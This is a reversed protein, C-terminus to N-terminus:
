WWTTGFRREEWFAPTVWRERPSGTALLRRRGDGRHHGKGVTSSRYTHIVDYECCVDGKVGDSLTEAGCCVHQDLMLSPRTDM